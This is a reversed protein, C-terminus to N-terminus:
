RNAGRPMILIRGAMVMRPIIKLSCEACVRRAEGDIELWASSEQGCFYCPPKPKGAFDPPKDM